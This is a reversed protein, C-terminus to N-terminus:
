GIRFVAPEPERATALARLEDWPDLTIETATTTCVPCTGEGFLASIDCDDTVTAGEDDGEM